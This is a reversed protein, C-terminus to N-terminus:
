SSRRKRTSSPSRSNPRPRCARSAFRSARPPRRTSRGGRRRRPARGAARGSWCSPRPGTGKSGDFTAPRKDKDLKAISLKLQKDTLEYIGANKEGKPGTLDIHKPSKSPDLTFSGEETKGLGSILLKNGAFTMKLLGSLKEPLPEGNEAGAVVKWSGQIKEQDSGKVLPQKGSGGPLKVPQTRLDRQENPNKLVPCLMDLDDISEGGDITCLARFKAADLTEPIFRVKGDGMIALAGRKNQHTTSVFPALPRGDEHVDAVGRLTAGGGALWPAKHDGPVTLFAITQGVGDKVEDRTTVRDYGFLGRKKATAPDNAPYDAAELGVGAIAVFHTAGFHEEGRGPYTVLPLALGPAPPLLLPPLVRRATLLNEGEDWSLAEDVKWDAYEPGLKPLLAAAWSLRQEPRWPLPRGSSRRPLVGPPFANKEKVYDTLASALDFVRARKSILESQSRFLYLRERAADALADFPKKKADDKEELRIDAVYLLFFNERHGTITGQAEEDVKKEVGGVGGFM